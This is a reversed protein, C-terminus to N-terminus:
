LELQLLQINYYNDISKSKNKIWHQFLKYEKVIHSHQYIIIKFYKIFMYKNMHKIKLHSSKQPLTSKSKIM